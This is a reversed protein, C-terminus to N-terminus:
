EGLLSNECVATSAEGIAIQITEFRRLCEDPFMQAMRPGYLM